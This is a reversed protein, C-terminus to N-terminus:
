KQNNIIDKIYTQKNAITDNKIAIILAKENTVLILNKEARTVMTYLLNRKLNIYHSTDM